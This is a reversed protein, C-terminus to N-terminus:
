ESTGRVRKSQSEPEHDRKRKQDRTKESFVFAQEEKIRYKMVSDKALSALRVVNSKLSHAEGELRSSMRLLSSCQVIRVNSSPSTSSSGSAPPPVKSWVKIRYRKKDNPQSVVNIRVVFAGFFLRNSRNDEETAVFFQFRLKEVENDSLTKEEQTHDVHECHCCSVRLSQRSKYQEQTLQAFIWLNGRCDKINGTSISLERNSSELNLIPLRVSSTVRSGDGHHDSGSHQVKSVDNKAKRFKENKLALQCNTAIM